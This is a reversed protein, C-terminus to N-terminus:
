LAASVPHRRRRCIAIDVVRGYHCLVSVSVCLIHRSTEDVDDRRRTKPGAPSRKAEATPKTQNRAPSSPPTQSPAAAPPNTSTHAHTVFPVGLVTFRLRRVDAEYGNTARTLERARKGCEFSHICLYHNRRPEVRAHMKPTTFLIRLPWARM